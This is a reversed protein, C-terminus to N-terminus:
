AQGRTPDLRSIEIVREAMLNFLFPDYIADVVESKLRKMGNVEVIDSASIQLPGGNLELGEVSRLSFAVAEYNSLMGPLQGVHLWQKRSLPALKFVTPVMGEKFFPRIPDLTGSKVHEAWAAQIGDREDLAPDKNWVFDHTATLSRNLTLM